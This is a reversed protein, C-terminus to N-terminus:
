QLEKLQIEQFKATFARDIEDMKARVRSDGGSIQMKVMFADFLQNDNEAANVMILAQDLVALRENNRDEQFNSETM